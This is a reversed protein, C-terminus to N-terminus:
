VTVGSSDQFSIFYDIGDMCVVPKGKEKVITLFQVDENKDCFYETFGEREGSTIFVIMQKFLNPLIASVQRRVDLDLAGAPSDVVFPLQYTSNDFMSGLFSYAIALTQGASAGSKDKLKVHRDIDGVYISETKIIKSIKENTENKIREKLKVLTKNEISRLYKKIKEASKVLIVTNTAEMLRDEISEIKKECLPINEYYDLNQLHTTDTTTLKEHENTLKELTLKLEELEEKLNQLEFDGAEELQIQLRDWETKIRQREFLERHLIEKEENLSQSYRRDRIASKVANIVGIQDEALYDESKKLIVEKENRRIERGCICSDSEALEQFFQKSTTRPLKLYEMKGSLKELRQAIQPSLVYPNRMKEIFSQTSNDIEAKNRRKESELEEVKNRISDNTKLKQSIDIEIQGHRLEKTQIEAEVEKQRAKLKLLTKQVADRQNKLVKLGQDTKTSTKQSNLQAENVISNIRYRLEELRNLKYLYKIAKEAEDSNSDIIDKALEGDFIFRKVFEQTLMDQITSPLLLGDDLGGVDGVKSTQYKAEGKEYDLNLIIHYVQEEILLKVSFKGNPANSDAPRFDRIINADWNKAQGDFVARLLTITTTKGTGNPMMTLTVIFPKNKNKELSIDLNNVGRINEYKLGLIRIKM